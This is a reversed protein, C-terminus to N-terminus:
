VPWQRWLGNPAPTHKGISQRLPAAVCHTQQLHHAVNHVRYEILLVLQLLTDGLFCLMAMHGPRVTAPPRRNVALVYTGRGSRRQINTSLRPGFVKPPYRACDEARSSRMDTPPKYRANTNARGHDHSMHPTRQRKPHHLGAKPMPASAFCTRCGDNTCAFNAAAHTCNKTNKSNLLPM